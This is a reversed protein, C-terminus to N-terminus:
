SAPVPDIDSGPLNELVTRFREESEKLKKDAKVRDTIDRSIEIISYVQGSDDRLPVAFHEWYNVDRGDVEEHTIMGTEIEGTQFAKVGFCGHCAEPFV